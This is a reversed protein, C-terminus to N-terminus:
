LPQVHQILWPLQNHFGSPISWVATGSDARDLKQQQQQQQQQLASGRLNGVQDAAMVAGLVGPKGLAVRVMAWSLAVSSYAYLLVVGTVVGGDATPATPM